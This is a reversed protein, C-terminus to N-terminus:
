CSCVVRLGDSVNVCMPLSADRKASRCNVPFSTQCGGRLMRKTSAVSAVLRFGLIVFRFGPGSADRFASRCRRAFTFWSGSRLVRKVSM